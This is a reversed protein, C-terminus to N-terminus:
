EDYPIEGNEQGPNIDVVEYDGESLPPDDDYNEVNAEFNLDAIYAAADNKIAERNGDLLKSLTQWYLGIADSPDKMLLPYLYMVPNLIDPLEPHNESYRMGRVIDRPANWLFQKVIDKSLPINPFYKTNFDLLHSLIDNVEDDSLITEELVHPMTQVIDKENTLKRLLQVLESTQEPQPQSTVAPPSYASTKILKTFHM